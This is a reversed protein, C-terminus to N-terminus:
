NKENLNMTINSRHNQTHYQRYKDLTILRGFIWYVFFVGVKENFLSSGQRDECLHYVHSIQIRSLFLTRCYKSFSYPVFGDRFISHYFKRIDEWVSRRKM